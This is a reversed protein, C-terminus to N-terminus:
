YEFAARVINSINNEWEPIEDSSFGKPNAVHTATLETPSWTEGIKLTSGFWGWQLRGVPVFVSNIGAQKYMTYTKFLDGRTISTELGELRIRPTDTCEIQRWDGNGVRKSRKNYLLGEGGRADIYYQNQTDVLLGPLNNAYDIKFYTSVLQIYNLTGRGDFPQPNEGTDPAALNGYIKIGTTGRGFGFSTMRPWFGVAPNIDATHSFMWWFEPKFLDIYYSTSVEKGNIVATVTLFVTQDEANLWYFKFYRQDFKDDSMEIAHGSTLTQVYDSYINGSVYWNRTAVQDSVDVGNKDLAKGRFRQYQGDIARPIQINSALDDYRADSYDLKRQIILAYTDDPANPQPTFVTTGDLLWEPLSDDNDAPASHMYNSDDVGTGLSDEAFVSGSSDSFVNLNLELAVQSDGPFIAVASILYSGASIGVPIQLVAGQSTNGNFTQDFETAQTVDSGAITSKAVILPGFPANFIFLQAKLDPPNDLLSNSFFSILTTGENGAVDYALIELIHPGDPVSGLPQSSLFDISNNASFGSQVVLNHIISEQYDFTIEEGDLLLKTHIFDLGSGFDLLTGSFTPAAVSVTSGLFPTVFEIRPDTRDVKVHWTEEANLNGLEDAIQAKVTYTDEALEEDPVLKFTRNAINHTVTVAHSVNSSDKLSVVLSNWNLAIDPYMMYVVAEIKPDPNYLYANNNPSTFSIVPLFREVFFDWQFSTSNGATDTATVIYSHQGNQMDHLEIGASTTHFAVPTDGDGLVSTVSWGNADSVALSATPGRLPTNFNYPSTLQPATNDIIFTWQLPESQLGTIDAVTVCMHVNGEPIPGEAYGWFGAESPFAVIWYETSADDTCHIYFSGSDIPMASQIFDASVTYSGLGSIVPTPYPNAVVPLDHDVIFASERVSWNTANDVAYVLLTHQGNALNPVSLVGNSYTFQSIPHDTDGEYVYVSNVGSLPNGGSDLPDYINFLATNSNLDLLTYPTEGFQLAILNASDITPGRTDFKLQQHISFQVGDSTFFVFEADYEGGPIWNAIADFNNGNIYTPLGFTYADAGIADDYSISYLDQPVDDGPYLTTKLVIGGLWWTPDSSYSGSFSYGNIYGNHLNYLTVDPASYVHISVGNAAQLGGPSNIIPRAWKWGPSV